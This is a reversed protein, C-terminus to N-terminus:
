RGELYREFVNFIAHLAVAAGVGGRAIRVAGFLLSPFFVAARAVGPEAVVHTLAFLLSTVAVVRAADAFPPKRSRTFDVLGLADAVRTQLYGRFFLEETLAVAVVEGLLTAVPDHTFPLHRPGVPHNFLPWALTYVPLVVAAVLAAFGLERLASPVAEVLARPLSRPDGSAGPILGELRVGYRETDDDDKAIGRLAAVLFVVGILGHLDRRVAAPRSLAFVLANVAFGAVALHRRARRVTDTTPM